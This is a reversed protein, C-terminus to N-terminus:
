GQRGRSKKKGGGARKGNTDLGGGNAKEAKRQHAARDKKEQKKRNHSPGIAKLVKAKEAAKKKLEEREKKDAYSTLLFPLDM